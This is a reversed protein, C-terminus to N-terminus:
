ASYVPIASLLELCYVATECIQPYHSVVTHVFYIVNSVTELYQKRHYFSSSTM